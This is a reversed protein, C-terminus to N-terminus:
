ISKPDSDLLLQQQGKANELADNTVVQTLDLGARSVSGWLLTEDSNSCGTRCQMGHKRAWKRVAARWADQAEENSSEFYAYGVGYPSALVTETLKDYTEELTTVSM